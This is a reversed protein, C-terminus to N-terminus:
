LRDDEVRLFAEISRVSALKKLETIAQQFNKEKCKHTLFVIEGVKALPDLVKMEMASLSVEQEGFVMAIEGLVKPQDNVRIRLYYGSSLENISETELGVGFPIASGPGNAAMNRGVDILDGVVASATPDGGAGKGSFMIDGVFDGHLWVANNVGNVSSIPHSLPVFTPHVRALVKGDAVPEVIGLLKIKYGLIEAYKFEESKLGSIGQRYIGSVDPLKGYAIATLVALKYLTDFGEVDNTPDAEAFGLAQADKLVEALDSGELDMRTLIYNCTGNLIGILKLVDNGSLQHKIPQILPIGGGVAAEFHLDLQGEKALHVLRSGQKAMLEKNATVVSKKNLLATEVLKEAPDIGGILELVVDISPDNVISELDDTLLSQDVDRSKSLDRIGIKVIEVPFGIRDTVAAYNDQLMRFVGSGVTGFGLFGVRLSKQQSM